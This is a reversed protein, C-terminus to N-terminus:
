KNGIVTNKSPSNDPTNTPTNGPNNIPPSNTPTSDNTPISDNTPTSSKKGDYRDKLSLSSDIFGVTGAVVAGTQIIKKLLEKNSYLIYSTISIVVIMYLIIITNNLLEFWINISYLIWNYDYINYIIMKM